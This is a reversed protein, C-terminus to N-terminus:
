FWGAGLGRFPWPISALILILAILYYNFQTKFRAKSDTGKKAKIYGITLITIALLMGVAHEMTYFRYIKNAMMNEFSVKGGANWFYLIPGLVLQVHASIFAILGLKRDKDTFEKGSSKGKYANFIVLLLGALLIYRLGSHAHLIGNYM